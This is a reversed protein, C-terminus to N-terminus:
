LAQLEEMTTIIEQIINKPIRQVKLDHHLDKKYEEWRNSIQDETRYGPEGINQLHKQQWDKLAKEAIEQISNDLEPLSTIYKLIIKSLLQSRSTGKLVSYLSIREAEERPIYCGVLKNRTVSDESRSRFVTGM